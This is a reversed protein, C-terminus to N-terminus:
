MWNHLRPLLYQKTDGGGQGAAAPPPGAPLSVHEHVILWKGGEKQWVASWRADSSEKSGDKHTGDFRFTATSWALKGDKHVRADDNVTLKLASYETFVQTVGKEYESWGNYKLPAIDFFVNDPSKSYFIAPKSPDMTSWADLVQQMLAKDPADDSKKSQAHTLSTSIVLVALLSASIAFRKV